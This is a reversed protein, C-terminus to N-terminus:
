AQWAARRLPWEGDEILNALYMSLDKLRVTVIADIAAQQVAIPAVGDFILPLHNVLEQRIQEAIPEFRVQAPMAALRRLSEIRATEPAGAADIIRWLATRAQVRGFEALAQAARAHAYEGAYADELIAEQMAVFRELLGPDPQEAMRLCRATLLPDIKLAEEIVQTIVEPADGAFGLMMAFTDHWGFQSVKRRIASSNKAQSNLFHRAAFYEQFSQHLFRLNKGDRYLMEAASIEELVGSWHDKISEPVLRQVDKEPLSTERRQVLEYGLVGLLLAKEEYTYRTITMEQHTLHYRQELYWRSFTEFLGGRSQPVEGTERYHEVIMWLFLPTQALDRVQAYDPDDLLLSILRQALEEHNSVDKERLYDYIYRRAQETEVKQLTVVPFPLLGPIYNYQRHCVLIPTGSFANRLAIIWDAVRKKQEEALENLADVIIYLSGITLLDINRENYGLISVTSGLNREDWNLLHEALDPARLIVPMRPKITPLPSGQTESSKLQITHKVPSTGTTNNGEFGSFTSEQDVISRALRYEWERAITSKGSGADGILVVAPNEIILSMVDEGTGTPTQLLESEALLEDTTLMKEFSPLENDALMGRRLLRQRRHGVRLQGKLDIYAKLSIYVEHDANLRNIADNAADRFGRKVFGVRADEFADKLATDQKSDLRHWVKALNALESLFAEPRTQVVQIIESGDERLAETSWLDYIDTNTLAEAAVGAMVATARLKQPVVEENGDWKLTLHAFLFIQELYDRVWQEQYDRPYINRAARRITWLLRFASALEARDAALREEFRRAAEDGLRCAAALLRQLRVHQAWTLDAPLVDRTLCGELRTFDMLIPENDHTLAYDILCPNENIVLINRPNLDGHIVSTVRHPRSSEIVDPLAAFPDPVRAGPGTLLGDALKFDGGLGNLLRKRHTKMRLSVLEGRLTWRSGNEISSALQYVLKKDATVEIRLFHANEEAMLRDDQWTMRARSVLVVDGKAAEVDVRISARAIGRPRLIKPEVGYPPHYSTELTKNASDIRDIAVEADIGLRRNWLKQLTTEQDYIRRKDYLDNHIGDFLTQLTKVAKELTPGGHRIAEHAIEEFTRMQNQPMGQFRAAHDYVVAEREGRRPHDRGLAVPTAAEIPVFLASADRLYNDFAKFENELDHGLGLKIVRRAEHNGRTVAVELVESGSRGGSLRGLIKIKDPWSRWEGSERSGSEENVSIRHLVDDIEDRDEPSFGVEPFVVEM